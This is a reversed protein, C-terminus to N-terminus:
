KYLKKSAEEFKDGPVWAPKTTDNSILYVAFAFTRYFQTIYSMDLSAFEDAPRHYYKFIDEDMKALGPQLKIAPVGERAFSVQDSREYFGESPDPDGGLNLKYAKAAQRLMEDRNTRGLSISTVRSKDNYGVGDCNMNLVTKELPVLPHKVYWSSGLLGKEECTVAMVIVSRKAPFSSLFKSTEILAVTGTANDRAGNFISDPQDAERTVGVHDYHATLIVYEDKLVPDTGEIIGAVNKGKYYEAAPTKVSLKGKVKQGANFSLSGISKPKVWIFPISEGESIAWKENNLYNVLAPWPAQPVALFEVLGAAGMKKVLSHKERSLMFIKNINDADKAGALALVYKGKIDAKELEEQAGYGVYVFEGNWEVAGGGLVLLNEKLVFQDKGITANGSLPPRLKVLDVPQFYDDTGPLPKINNMRFQTRIYNAAIDLENSGADRGRMEDSALFSLHAAAERQVISKDIEATINQAVSFSPALVVALFASKTLFHKMTSSHVLFGM